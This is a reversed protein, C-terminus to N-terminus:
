SDVTPFLIMRRMSNNGYHGTGPHAYNLLLYDM